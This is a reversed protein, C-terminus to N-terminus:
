TTPDMFGWICAPRVVYNKLIRNCRKSVRIVQTKGQEGGTQKIQPIIGAYSVLNTLSRQQNPDGIEASVGAALILGIGRITTLFAGPIQALYAAIDCKLQDTSEQLCSILRVQQKLSLQLTVIHNKPPNLVQAAYRQLKEVRVEPNPLGQKALIKVLATPRRRRIQHVSFRDEMLILSAPSFPPIGSKSENLFGPFIQDVITHVRNKVGSKTVVLKQRERCLTQLKWYIGSQAPACNGRCNLLMKSIGLLDLRDTSAQVNERHRKADLANVGAM